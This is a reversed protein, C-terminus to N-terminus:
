RQAMCEEGWSLEHKGLYASAPDSMNLAAMYFAIQILLPVAVIEEMWLLAVVLRSKTAPSELVDCILMKLKLGVIVAVFLAFSLLTKLPASIKLVGPLEVKFNSIELSSVESEVDFSYIWNETM